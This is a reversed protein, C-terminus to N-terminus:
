QADTFTEEMTRQVANPAIRKAMETNVPGVDMWGVNFVYSPDRYGWLHYQNAGDVTRDKCPYLEVAECNPGLLEDKIRQLHRWDHIPEKNIRKISLHWLDPAGEDDTQPGRNRVQVEYLNNRWVEEPVTEGVAELKAIQADDYVCPQFDLWRIAQIPMTPRHGRDHDLTLRMALAVEKILEEQAIPGLSDLVRHLAMRAMAEEAGTLQDITPNLGRMGLKGLISKRDSQTLPKRKRNKKSAM